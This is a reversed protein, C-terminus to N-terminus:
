PSLASAQVTLSMPKLWVQNWNKESNSINSYILYKNKMLVMFCRSFHVFCLSKYTRLHKQDREMKIKRPYANEM